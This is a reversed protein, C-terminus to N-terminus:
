RGLDELKRNRADNQDLLGDVRGRIKAGDYGVLGAAQVATTEARPPPPPLSPPTPPAPPVSPKCGAIFLLLLAALFSLPRM